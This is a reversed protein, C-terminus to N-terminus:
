TPKVAGSSDISLGRYTCVASGRFVGVQHLVPLGVTITTKSIVSAPSTCKYFENGPSSHETEPIGIMKNTAFTRVRVCIERYAVKTKYVQKM